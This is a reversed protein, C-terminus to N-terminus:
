GFRGGYLAGPLAPPSKKIDERCLEKDEAQERLTINTGKNKAAFDYRQLDNQFM